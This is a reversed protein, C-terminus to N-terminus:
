FSLKKRATPMLIYFDEKGATSNEPALFGASIEYKLFWSFISFLRIDYKVHIWALSYIKRSEM